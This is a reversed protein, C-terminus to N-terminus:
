ISRAILNNSMEILRYKKALSVTKTENVTSDDMHTEWISSSNPNGNDCVNIDASRATKQAINVLAIFM